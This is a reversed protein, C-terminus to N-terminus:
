QLLGRLVTVTTIRTIALHSTSATSGAPAHHEGTESNLKTRKSCNADGSLSTSPARSSTNARAIPHENCNLGAAELLDALVAASRNGPLGAAKCRQQLRRYPTTM